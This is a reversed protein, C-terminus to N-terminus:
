SLAVVHADLNCTLDNRHEALVFLLKTTTTLSPRRSSSRSKSLTTDQFSFHLHTTIATISRIIGIFHISRIDTACNVCETTLLKSGVMSYEMAYGVVGVLLMGKFLPAPSGAIFDKRTNNVIKWFHDCYFKPTFLQLVPKLANM